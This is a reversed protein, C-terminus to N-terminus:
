EDKARPKKKERKTKERKEPPPPEKGEFLWHELPAKVFKPFLIFAAVLLALGYPPQWQIVWVPWAFALGMNIFTDIIFEIIFGILDASMVNITTLKPIDDFLIDNIEFYLFAVAFGVAYLGGGRAAWVKRFWQRFLGHAQDPIGGKRTLEERGKRSVAAVREGLRPKAPQTEPSDESM